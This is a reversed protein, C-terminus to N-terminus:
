RNVKLELDLFFQEVDTNGVRSIAQPATVSLFIPEDTLAQQLTAADTSRGRLRINRGNQTYQVIYSSDPLLETLRAIELQPSPLEGRLTNLEIIATNVEALEDRLKLAEGAAARTEQQMVALNNLDRGSLFSSLGALALLLVLAATLWGGAWWLRRRYDSERRGEGFGRLVVWNGGCDAWLEKALPDHIDHSDSLYAMAAGRSLIALDVRLQDGSESRAIRWGAATDDPAFPSSASVELMLAAELDAEAITPLQLTRSLVLEDPLAVAELTVPPHDIQRSAQYTTVSGDPRILSVMSDLQQRVPSDDGFLIDRWAALWLRGGDRMDVGFVEFQNTAM